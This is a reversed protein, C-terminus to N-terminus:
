PAPVESSDPPYRDLVRRVAAEKSDVKGELQEERLWRLLVGLRRGPAYGVALLDDGRVIPPPLVPEARFAAVQEDCFRALSLDGHSAGCDARHLALHLPLDPAGLFERLRHRRMKPLNPFTMHTAVLDAVRETRRRPWRMREGLAETMRAGLADHGNFRVRGDPDVTKTPPKGVDHLMAGLVVDERAEADLGDLELRDLVLATHVFVDGEPHFPPPQPVGRMAAIEPLVVDLLGSRALLRLARGRGAVLAKVLEDRTREPSVDAALPALRRIAAWTAPEIAFRLRAAFRVARLLRLHDERFRAEPDGIARLLRAALDQRGGVYDLVEGTEPEEFLGNVTFDRRAADTPPDSFVVGEPRRGDVYRGDARFTAVEVNCGEAPVVVVGFRAGVTVAHPFLAEVQEPHASTALDHDGPELGLLRDRVCGGAFLVRHGHAALRRAVALAVTRPVSAAM